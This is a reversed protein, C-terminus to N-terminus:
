WATLTPWQAVRHRGFLWALLEHDTVNDPREWRQGGLRSALKGLAVPIERAVYAESWSRWTLQGGLDGRHVEVERWRRLPLESLEFVPPSALGRGSGSWSAEDADAFATEVVECATALDALVETAPRTSGREIDGERQAVGGPYQDAVEGRGAATLLRLFSDANRALHTLVHGRSWGPLGSALAMEVDGWASVDALLQRHASAIGILDSPAPFM